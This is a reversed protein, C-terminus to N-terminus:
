KKRGRAKTGRSRIERQPNAILNGEDASRSPGPWERSGFRWRSRSCSANLCASHWAVHADTCVGAASLDFPLPLSPIAAWRRLPVLNSLLGCECTGYVSQTTPSIHPPPTPPALSLSSFFVLFFFGSLFRSLSSWLPLPYRQQM